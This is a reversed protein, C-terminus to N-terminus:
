QSSVYDYVMQSIRKIRATATATSGKAIVCLTYPRNPVYIIGCDNYLEKDILGIKHAVKVTNPVGAPLMSTFDTQTLLELIKESDDKDLVSSFYLARLISSYEQASIVPTNGELTPVIDLGEYVFNFDSDTIHDALVLSATNDSKTLALRVADQLNLNYGQGKKYLDGFHSDLEKEQITVTPDSMQNLMEKRHFYAMVVPVKLLSAATFEADENIGITTGTPLYQFYLAIADQYPDTEQHLKQRLPLFNILLDNASDTLVKKSILPYKSQLASVDVGNKPTSTWLCFIAINGIVSVLLLGVLVKYSIRSM